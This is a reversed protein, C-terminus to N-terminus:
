TRGRRPETGSPLIETASMAQIGATYQNMLDQYETAQQALAEPSAGSIAAQNREEM